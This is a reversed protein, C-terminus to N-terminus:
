TALIVIAHDKALTVLRRLFILVTGFNLCNDQFGLDKDGFTQSFGLGTVAEYYSFFVCIPFSFLRRALM